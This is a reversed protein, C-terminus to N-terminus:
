WLVREASSASIKMPSICNLCSLGIREIKGRLELVGLTLFHKTLIATNQPSGEVVARVHLHQQTGPIEHSQTQIQKM